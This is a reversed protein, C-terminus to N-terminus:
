GGQKKAGDTTNGFAAGDRIWEIITMIEDRTLPEKGDPPMVEDSGPKALILRVMQSETPKGPVIAEKESEGGKVALEPSDLRYGGKQKEAGHCRVCKAELIPQVKEHFLKLRENMVTGNTSSGTTLGAPEEELWDRLFEPANEVLYKSGHTLNGGYHGAMVVVALTGALLGRYAYTVSPTAAREAMRQFLLTAITLVPVSLGAIRHISLTHAEYGGDAARLIGFSAAVLGSILSLWVTLRTVRRLEEGPRRWNCAELICAMTIFGIPFHLVVAHFPALFPRWQFLHQTAESVEINVARAGALGGFLLVLVPVIPSVLASNPSSKLRMIM